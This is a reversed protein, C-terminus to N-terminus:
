ASFPNGGTHLRRLDFVGESQTLAWAAKIIDTAGERRPVANVQYTTKGNKQTKVITLDIDFMSTTYDELRSIELIGNWVTYTTTALVEIQSTQYNWISFAHGERVPDPGEGYRNEARVLGAESFREEILSPSPEGDFRLVGKKGDPKVGWAEYFTVMAPIDLDDPAVLAIRYPSDFELSSMYPTYASSGGSKSKKSLQQEQEPTYLLRAM